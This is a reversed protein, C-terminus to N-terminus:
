NMVAGLVHLLNMAAGLAHLILENNTSQLCTNANRLFLKDIRIFSFEYGQFYLTCKTMIVRGYNWRLLLRFLFDFNNQHCSVHLIGLNGISDM